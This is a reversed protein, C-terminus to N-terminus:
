QKFTLSNIAKLGNEQFIDFSYSSHPKKQFLPNFKVFIWVCAELDSGFLDLM